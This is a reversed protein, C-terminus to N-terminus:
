TNFEQTTGDAEPFRFSLDRESGKAKIGCWGLNRRYSGLAGSAILEEESIMERKDRHPPVHLADVPCYLECLFCTQCDELRAVMPYGDDSTDFVNDPYAM